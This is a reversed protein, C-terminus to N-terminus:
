TMDSNCILYLHVWLTGKESKNQLSHLTLSDACTYACVTQDQEISETGRDYTNTSWVWEFTM